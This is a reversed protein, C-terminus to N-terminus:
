NTTHPLLTMVVANHRAAVRHFAAITRCELTCPELCFMSGEEWMECGCDLCVVTAGAPRELPKV